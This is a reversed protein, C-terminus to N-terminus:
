FFPLDTKQPVKAHTIWWAKTQELCKQHLSKHSLYPKAKKGAPGWSWWRKGLSKWFYWVVASFNSSCKSLILCRILVQMVDALHSGKGVQWLAATLIVQVRLSKVLKRWSFNLQYCFVYQGDQAQREKYKKCKYKLAAWFHFCVM